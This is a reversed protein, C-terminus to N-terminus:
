QDAGTLLATKRYCVVGDTWEKPLVHDACRCGDGCPEHRIEPRLMGHEAAIHQLEDGEIGWGDPWCDMVAQAFARLAALEKSKDARKNWATRAAEASYFATPGSSACGGSELGCRVHLASGIQIITPATESGCFPCPKLTQEDDM